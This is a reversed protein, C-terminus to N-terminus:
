RPVWGCAWNNWVIRSWQCLTARRPAVNVVFSFEEDPYRVQYVGPLDTATFRYQDAALQRTDGDPRRVEALTDAPRRPLEVVDGVGYTSIALAPGAAEDLIGGLLPVFKSSLALQSDRPRWGSALVFVRGEGSAHEWLAPDGNDFRALLRVSDPNEITFKIHRWFHIRTFDNYRPSALTAFVPHTFDIDGLLTYKAEGSTEEKALQAPGTFRSLATAAERSAPVILLVGGADVYTQLHSAAASPVGESAVVLRPPDSQLHDLSDTSSQAAVTVREGAPSGFALQLYYLLGQTDRPDDGGIYVVRAQASGIPPVYLTDDFTSGDGQLILRDGSDAPPREVRIVRSQGAPVHVAIAKAAIPSKETGAWAVAFQERPSGTCNAVRVRLDRRTDASEEDAVIRIAANGPQAAVVPAIAVSIDAPWERARLGDLEAGNQMDSILVIEQSQATARQETGVQAADAVAALAAGLDTSGWGPRLGALARRVAAKRSAIDASRQESWPVVTRVGADFAFLALDDSPELDALLREVHAVAQPWLGERRMSASTDILIAVRRGSPPDSNVSSQRLFPRAFAAALLALAAARLLLLIWHDLRSRRNLRPPSPTLFMLSSFQVRGRPIRRILHLLIPLSIASLGLLYLPTLFSM